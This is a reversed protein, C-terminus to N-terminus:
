NKNINDRAITIVPRLGTNNDYNAYSSGLFGGSLVRYVISPSGDFYSSTWYTTNYLWERGSMICDNNSVSCGLQELQEITILSSSLLKDGLDLMLAYSDVYAKISSDEKITGSIVGNIFENDIKAYINCGYQTRQCYTNNPNVRNNVKDFAVANKSPNLIDNNDQKNLSLDINYKSLLVLEKEKIEIVNFEQENCIISSGIELKKDTLKCIKYEAKEVKLSSVPDKIAKLKGNSLSFTLKCKTDVSITGSIKTSSKYGELEGDKVIYASKHPLGTLYDNECKSKVFDVIELVEKKYEKKNKSTFIDTSFILFGIGMILLVILYFKWKGIFIM